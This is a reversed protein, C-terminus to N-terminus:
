FGMDCIKNFHENLPNREIAFVMRQYFDNFPYNSFIVIREDLSETYKKFLSEFFIIQWVSYITAGVSEMDFEGRWRQIMAMAELADARQDNFLLDIHSTAIRVIPGIIERAHVDTLDMQFSQMMEETIKM